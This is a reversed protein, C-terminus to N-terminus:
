EVARLREDSAVSIPWEDVGERVVWACADSGILPGSINAGMSGYGRDTRMM